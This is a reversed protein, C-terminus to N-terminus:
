AQTRRASDDARRREPDLDRRDVAGHRLWGKGIDFYACAHAVRNAAQCVCADPRNPDEHHRALIHSGIPLIMYAPVHCTCWGPHCLDTCDRREDRPEPEPFENTESGPRLRESWHSSPWVPVLASAHRPSPRRGAATM